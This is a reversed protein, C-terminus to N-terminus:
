ESGRGELESQPAYVISQIMRLKKRCDHDILERLREDQEDGPTLLDRYLVGSSLDLDFLRVYGYKSAPIDGLFGIRYGELEERLSERIRSAARERGMIVLLREVSITKIGDSERLEQKLMEFTPLERRVIGM